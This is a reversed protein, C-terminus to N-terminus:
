AMVDMVARGSSIPLPRNTRDFVETAPDIGLLYYLTASLDEPRVPDPRDRGVDVMVVEHGAELLSRAFHVASAGAGVVTM